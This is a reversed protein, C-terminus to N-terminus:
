PWTEVVKGPPRKGEWPQGDGGRPSVWRVRSGLADAAMWPDLALGQRIPQLLWVPWPRVDITADGPKPGDWWLTVPAEVLVVPADGGRIVAAWAAAPGGAGVGIFGVREPDIGPRSALEEAADLADRVAIGLPARAREAGWRVLREGMLRDGSTRPWLMAVSANPVHARVGALVPLGDVTPDISDYPDSTTRDPQKAAVVVWASGDAAGQPPHMVLHKDGAGVWREGDVLAPDGGDAVGLLQAAVTGSVGLPAKWPPKGQEAFGPVLTGEPMPPRWAPDIPLWGGSTAARAMDEAAADVAAGRVHQEIFSWSAAAMPHNIGHLQNPTPRVTAGLAQLAASHGKQPQGDWALVPRTSPPAGPRCAAQGLWRTRAEDSWGGPLAGCSCASTGDNSGFAYEYSGLVVADVRPDTMATVTVAEAGGSFGALALQEREILAESFRGALAAEMGAQAAVVNWALPTWGTRRGRMEGYVGDSFHAARDLPVAADGYETGRSSISLVAWGRRAFLESRFLVEDAEIGAEWHGPLNVLLPLPAAPLPDPELWLGRVIDGETEPHAWQVFTITFGEGAETRLREIEPPRPRTAPLGVADILAAREDWLAGDNCPDALNPAPPPAESGGGGCGTLLM